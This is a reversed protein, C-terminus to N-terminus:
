DGFRWVKAQGLAETLWEEVDKSKIFIDLVRAQETADEKDVAKDTVKIIHYGQESLIIDSTSGIGLDFVASELELDLQGRKIWNLDGGLSASLPDDSYEQALVKFKIPEAKVNELVLRAKALSDRNIAEDSNISFQLKNKLIYPKLVKTKFKELPWNYFEKIIEEVKQASGAQIIVNEIGADIEEPKVAVGRKNSLCGALENILMKDLVNNKTKAATPLKLGQSLGSEKQYFNIVADLSEQYDSYTILKYGCETKLIAAPYPIVRLVAAPWSSFQWNMKYVGAGLVVLFIILALIFYLFVRLIIAKRSRRKVPQNNALEKEPGLRDQKRRPQRELKKKLGELESENILAKEKFTISEKKTVLEKERWSRIKNRAGIAELLIKRWRSVKQKYTEILPAQKEQNEAGLEFQENQPNLGETKSPIEISNILPKNKKM